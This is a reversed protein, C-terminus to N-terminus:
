WSGRPKIYGEHVLSLADYFRQPASLKLRWAMRGHRTPQVYLTGDRVADIGAKAVEPAQVKSAEMWRIVQEDRARSTIGCSSEVINTRSYGPCLM